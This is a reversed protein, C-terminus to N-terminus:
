FLQDAALNVTQPEIKMKNAHSLGVYTIITGFLIIM